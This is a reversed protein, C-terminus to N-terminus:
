GVGRRLEALEAEQQELRAELRDVRVELQRTRAQRMEDLPAFNPENIAKRCVVVGTATVPGVLLNWLPFAFANPSRLFRIAYVTGVCIGLFSSAAGAAAALGLQQALTMHDDPILTGSTVGLVAGPLLPLKTPEIESEPMTCRRRCGRASALRLGRAAFMIVGSAVGVPSVCAGGGRRLIPYSVASAPSFCRLNSTYIRILM